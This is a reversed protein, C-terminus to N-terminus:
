HRVVVRTAFRRAEDQLGVLLYTGEAFQQMPLRWVEWDGNWTQCLRGEADYLLLRDCTVGSVFLVDSVPNPYCVVEQEYVEVGYGQTYILVSDASECPSGSLSGTVSYTTPVTPCVVIQNAIEGTSWQYYDAGSVSLTASEPYHLSTSSATLTLDPVPHVTLHLTVVSDCGHINVFTLSYDGTTDYVLGNWVYSDCTEASEETHSSPLLSLCLVTLTDHAYYFYSGETTAVQGHFLYSDGDCIQATVTDVHSVVQVNIATTVEATASDDYVAAIHYTYSGSETVVDNYCTNTTTGLTLSDRAIQYHSLAPPTSQFQARLSFNRGVNYFGWSTAGSSYHRCVIDGKEPVYTSTNGVPITYTGGPAEIYIGYWIEEGLTIPVPTQLAVTNWSSANLQNLNLTQEVVLTGPDLSFDEYSGGKYVILKCVTVASRLYFTIHTLRAPYFAVLDTDCLRYLNTRAYDSSSGYNSSHTQEGHQYTQMNIAPPNWTLHVNPTTYVANPAQPAAHNVAIAEGILSVTEELTDYLLQITGYQTHSTTANSQYRVYLSQNGGSLLVTDAFASSGDSITFNGSVIATVQTSGNVTIVHFSATDASGDVSYLVKKKSSTKMMPREVFVNIVAAQLTNFEHNGPTLDTLLFFGNNSGSWGWNFHFYDQDDYGDCVFAHGGADSQGRYMLPRLQNLQSKLANKWTTATYQSRRIYSPNSTYGFYTALATAAHSTSASSGDDGYNMDVSVGCHYILKAVQQLQATPTSSNLVSPMLSYDYTANGFNVYLNGYDCTDTHYGAGHAPYSWYRMVQAMSTAVCGAYVHGDPGDADAPCQSNYYANQDWRTSLLPPVVVENRSLPLSNEMIQRWQPHVPDAPSTRLYDTIEATYDAFIDAMAPMMQEVNFQGETSYAIVPCIRNDAALIVFGGDTNYIYFVPFSGRQGDVTAYQTYIKEPQSTPFTSNTKWQYFRSVTQSATVSDVPAAWSHHSALMM